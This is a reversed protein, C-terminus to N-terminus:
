AILDRHLSKVARKIDKSEVVFSINLESSGQAIAIINIRYKGLVSFVKGATGYKGKMGAGVVAIIGVRKQVLIRNIDHTVLQLVRLEKKLSKFTKEADEEKILFCISHDSSAQSIMLVSVGAKFVAGFVRAAIDTVGMVGMGEVTVLCLNDISTIAKIVKSNPKTKSNRTILTGSFNPNFTNKISISIGKRVAPLITKPHLVKAGFYSMESAEEYSIESIIKADKVLRPDASYIGDVDTWIWIEKAKLVAGIITASFDSSGRGLTTIEGKKTAGKFGTVIPIIDKRFLPNLVKKIKRSTEKELPRARGFDENTVILNESSIQEAKIGQDQLLVSLINSSFEEGYSSVIDLYRLTRERLAYIDSLIEELERTKKKIIDDVKNLLLPNKIIRQAVKLHKKKLDKLIKEFNRRHGLFAEESAKILSNTVGSMASVVIVSLEPKYKKIIQAVKQFALADGLSTGGFKMVLM